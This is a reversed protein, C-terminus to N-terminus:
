GHRLKLILISSTMTLTILNALIVSPSHILLGYTAWLIGGMVMLVYTWLSISRTHRTRLVRLLQPFSASTTCFAAAYGIWEPNAM